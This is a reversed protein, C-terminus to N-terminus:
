EIFLEKVQGHWEVTVNDKEIKTVRIGNIEEGVGVTDGNILARPNTANFFIGKLKLAAPWPQGAPKAIVPAPAPAPVPAPAPAPTEAVVPPPPSTVAPPPATEHAVPAAPVVLPLGPKPKVAAVPQVKVPAAKHSVSWWQWFFWGALGLAVVICVSTVVPFTRGRREAVPQMATNTEVSHPRNRDSQSARKLADNILSM